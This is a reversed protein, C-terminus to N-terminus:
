GPSAPLPQSVLWLDVKLMDLVAQIPSFVTSEESGAFLLGVARAGEDVVLSGSDGGASMPGAVIQGAFTAERDPGYSVNVTAGVVLVKEETLGTTRGSKRVSMGASAEAIGTVLGIDMIAGSILDPSLPRGVAADVLNERNTGLANFRRIKKARIPVFRELTAIADAMSGGDYPGPQLIADGKKALRDRGNTSNALVHNNSLILLERSRRDVVVAGFTGATAKYHAISVGPQAPRVKATRRPDAKQLEPGPKALQELFRLKGVQIVDTAVDDVAQPVMQNPLLQASPVKKEVLVVIAPQTTTVGGVQKYGVGVGVVNPLNLLHKKKKELTKQLKEM